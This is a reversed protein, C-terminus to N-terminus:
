PNSSVTRPIDDQQCAYCSTDDRTWSLACQLSQAINHEIATVFLLLAIASLGGCILFMFPIGYFDAIAGLVFGAISIGLDFGGYYFSFVKGRTEETTNDAVLATLTPQHTGFGFGYLIASFFLFPLATAQSLMVVSIGLLLLAFVIFPGRGYRDSFRGIAVRILLAALGYVAFFLGINVEFNAKLHLPIYFMVGGHVLGILLIIAGCTLIRRQKVVQWYKTSQGNNKKSRTEKLFFSLLMCIGALVSVFVFLVNYGFTEGVFSGLVPGLAFAVTNVVGTYSIVEGRSAPPAADTILTISATGFAALGLGHFIRIPILTAISDIVLYLLPSVIFIVVGALLVIRRGLNDVQKGVMPRFMLVGFAFSSMVIGIQSNDGGIAKLYTPFTPLLSSLSTFFLIRTVWNLLLQSNLFRHKAM